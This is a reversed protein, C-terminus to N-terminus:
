KHYPEGRIIPMARYLQEALMVRALEHPFTMKSLALVHRCSKRFEEDLGSASGIFFAIHREGHTMWRELLSAFEESTMLEGREDLAVRITDPSCCKEFSEAEERLGLERNQATLKSERLSTEKFPIYHTLRGTYETVLAKCRKEKVKGMAVIEIKM